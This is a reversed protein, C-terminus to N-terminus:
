TPPLLAAVREVIDFIKFPKRIFLAYGACRLAVTEEPLSSLLIVPVDKLTPDAAMAKILSAGDMVPMMYDTLVIAPIQKAAIQLAHRGNSAVLVVHGEDTLVDELLHAIAFEDEVVLVLAM